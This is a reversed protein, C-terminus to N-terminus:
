AEPEGHKLRRVMELFRDIVREGLGAVTPRTDGGSSAVPEEQATRRQAAQSLKKVAAALHAVEASLTDLRASLAEDATSLRECVLAGSQYACHATMGTKTDLRTFGPGDPSLRYRGAPDAADASLVIGGVVFAIAISIKFQPMRHGM